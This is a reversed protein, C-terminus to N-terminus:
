KVEVEFCIMVIRAMSETVRCLVMVFRNRGLTVGLRVEQRGHGRCLGRWDENLNGRRCV